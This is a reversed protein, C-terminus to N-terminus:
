NGWQWKVLQKAIEGPMSFIFDPRYILNVAPTTNNTRKNVFTRSIKVNQSTKIIGKISLATANSGGINMNNSVFIGELNTVSPDVTINGSALVMLFSGVPVSNNTTVNLNGNVFYIGTTGIDSMNKDGNLTNGIGKEWFYQNLFYSYDSKVSSVLPKAVWWDNPNGKKVDSNGTNSIVKSAVIGNTGNTGSISMACNATTCTIPVRNTLVNNAMLGGGVAQYWSDQDVVGSFDIRLSPSASYPNIVGNNLTVVVSNPCSSTGASVDTTKVGSGLIQMAIDSNFIATYTKGWTLNGNYESESVKSMNMTPSDNYDLTTFNTARAVNVYDGAVSCNGSAGGDYLRGSVPVNCNWVKFRRNTDMWGSNLPPHQDYAIACVYYATGNNAIASTDVTFVSIGNSAVVKASEYVVSGTCNAGTTLRLQMSAIDTVNPNSDSARVWWKVIKENNFANECTHNWGAGTITTPPVLTVGDNKYLRIEQIIPALDKTASCNATSGNAGGCTGETGACTWGYTTAGTTVASATGSNCLATPTTTFTGGNSSGCSGSTGGVAPKTGNCMDCGNISKGQTGVCYDGSNRCDTGMSGYCTQGCNGVFTNHDCTQLFRSDGNCDAVCKPTCPSSRVRDEDIRIGGPCDAEWDGKGDVNAGNTPLEPYGNADCCYKYVGGTNCDCDSSHLFTDTHNVWKDGNSCATTTKWKPNCKYGDFSNSDNECVVISKTWPSYDNTCCDNKNSSGSCGSNTGCNSNSSLKYCLDEAGTCNVGCAINKYCKTICCSQLTSNSNKNSTPCNEPKAELKCTMYKSGSYCTEAQVKITGITLWIMLGVILKFIIKNKM